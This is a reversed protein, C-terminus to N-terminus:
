NRFEDICLNENRIVTYIGQLDNGSRAVNEGQGISETQRSSTEYTHVSQVLM